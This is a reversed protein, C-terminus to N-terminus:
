LSAATQCLEYLRTVATRPLRAGGAARFRWWPAEVTVTALTRDAGIAELRVAAEIGDTVDLWALERGPAVRVLMIVGEGGPRALLGTRRARVIRWRAGEALGRRDPQVGTYGPWWDPLHYPEALLAWVDDLPALLERSASAGAM